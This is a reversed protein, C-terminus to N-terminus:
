CGNWVQINEFHTRKNNKVSSGEAVNGMKTLSLENKRNTQGIINNNDKIEIKRVGSKSWSGRDEFYTQFEVMELCVEERYGGLQDKRGRESRPLKVCFGSIRNFYLGSWTVGRQDFDKM